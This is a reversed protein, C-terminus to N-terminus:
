AFALRPEVILGGSLSRRAAGGADAAATAGVVWISLIREIM